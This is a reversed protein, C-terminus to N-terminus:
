AVAELKPKQNKLRKLEAEAEALAKELKGVRLVAATLHAFAEHLDRTENPYFRRGAILSSLGRAVVEAASDDDDKHKTM